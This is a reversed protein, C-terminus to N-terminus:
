KKPSTFNEQELYAALFQMMLGFPHDLWARALGVVERIENHNLM